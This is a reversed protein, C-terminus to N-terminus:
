LLDRLAPPPANLAPRRCVPCRPLKLVPMAEAKLRSLDFRYIYGPATIDFLGYSISMVHHVVLFELMGEMYPPLSQQPNNQLHQTAYALYEDAFKLNGVYRQHACEFCASQGPVVLPGMLATSETLRFFSIKRGESIAVKNSERSLEIDDTDCCILTLICDNTVDDPIKETSVLIGNESLARKAIDYLLGRGKLQVVLDAGKGPIFFPNEIKARRAIYDMHHLLPNHPALEQTEVVYTREIFVELLSEIIPASFDQQQARQLIDNRPTPTKLKELIWLAEQIHKDLTIHNGEPSRIQLKSNGEVVTISPHKTLNM